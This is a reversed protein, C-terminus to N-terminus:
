GFKKSIKVGAGIKLLECVTRARGKEDAQKLTGLGQKIEIAV